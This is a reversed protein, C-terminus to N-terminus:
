ELLERAKYRTFWQLTSLGFTGVFLAILYWTTGDYGDAVFGWLFGIGTLLSAVAMTTFMALQGAPNKLMFVYGVALAMLLGGSWRLAFYSFAASSAMTEVMYGPAFFILGGFALVDILGVWLTFKLLGAGRPASETQLSTEYRTTTAM